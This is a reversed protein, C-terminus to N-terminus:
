EIKPLFIVIVSIWLFVVSALIFAIIYTEYWRFFNAVKPPKRFGPRVFQDALECEERRYDVWSLIGVVILLVAFLAILTALAVAALLGTRAVDPQVGWKRYGVFISLGAGALVTTLSQYIALFRYVNENLAHIQQLIFKYREYALSDAITIDRGNERNLDVFAM